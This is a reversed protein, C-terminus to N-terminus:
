DERAKVYSFICLCILIGQIVFIPIIKALAVIGMSIGLVEVAVYGLVVPIICLVVGRREYPKRDAWLLLITWGLMVPAGYLLGFRFGADLPLEVGTSALFLRPFVMRVTEFADAIIGWWFTVRLWLVGKKM